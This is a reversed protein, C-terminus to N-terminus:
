QEENDGILSNNISKHQINVMFKNCYQEIDAETQM